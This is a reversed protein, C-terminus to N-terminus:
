VFTYLKIENPDSMLGFLVKQASQGYKFSVFNGIGKSISLREFPPSGLPGELVPKTMQMICKRLLQQLLFTLRACPM